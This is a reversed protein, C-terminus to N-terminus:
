LDATLVGLVDLNHALTDRGLGGDYLISGTRGENTVSVLLSYGHEAILAEREFADWRLPPRVVGPGSPLLVDISNDVLITVDLSDVPSLDPLPKPASSTLVDNPDHVALAHLHRGLDHRPECM